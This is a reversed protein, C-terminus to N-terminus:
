EENEMMVQQISQRKNRETVAPDKFMDTEGNVWRVVTPIFLDAWDTYALVDYHVGEEIDSRQM